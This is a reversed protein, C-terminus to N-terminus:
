RHIAVPLGDISVTGTARKDMGLSCRLLSSKGAGNAGLIVIMESHSTELSVDQLISENNIVLSLNNLALSTM